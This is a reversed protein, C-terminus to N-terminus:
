HPGGLIERARDMRAKAEANLRQIENRDGSAVAAAYAREDEDTGFGAEGIVYSRRQDALMQAQERPTMADGRAKAKALAETLTEATM